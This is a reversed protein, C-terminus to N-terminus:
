VTVTGRVTSELWWWGRDVIERIEPVTGYGYWVAVAVVAIWVIADGSTATGYRPNPGNTRAFRILWKLPGSILLWIVLLAGLAIWFGHETPWGWGFVAGTLVLSALAILWAATFAFLALVAFGEVLGILLRAGLPRPEVAASMPAAAAAPEAGPSQLSSRWNARASAMGRRWHARSRRWERRWATSSKEWDTGSAFQAARDRARDILVRANFPEGRAAAREEATNAVPVIFMLVFYAVALAGGTVFTLVVTAIRILTVDADFYAALGNCLGSILAGENIQYLRRTARPEQSASQADAGAARAGPDATTGDSAASANASGSHTGTTDSASGHSAAAGADFTASGAADAARTGTDADGIAGVAAQADGADGSEVPGMETVVTEVDPRQLVSRGAGLFRACKEAIAQELDALIEARDPNAALAHSAGDLYRELLAHADDELQFANGNLSVSIVRRM